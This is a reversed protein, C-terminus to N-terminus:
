ASEIKDQPNESDNDITFDGFTSEKDEGIHREISGPNVAYKKLAAIKNETMGLKTSLEQITPKRGKENELQTEALNMKHISDNLHVPIKITRSHEIVARQM